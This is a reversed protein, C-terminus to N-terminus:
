SVQPLDIDKPDTFISVLSKCNKTEYIPDEAQIRFFEPNIITIM